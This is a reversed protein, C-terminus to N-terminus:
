RYAKFCDLSFPSCAKHLFYNVLRFHNGYNQVLDFVSLVPTECARSESEFLTLISLTILDIM